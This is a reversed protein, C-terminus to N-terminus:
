GWAHGVCMWHAAMSSISSHRPGPLIESSWTIQRRSPSHFNDTRSIHCRSLNSGQDISRGPSRLGSSVVQSQSREAYWIAAVISFYSGDEPKELVSSMTIESRTM